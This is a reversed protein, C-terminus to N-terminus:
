NRPLPHSASWRELAGPVWAHKFGLAYWHLYQPLWAWLKFQSEGATRDQWTTPLQEIRWGHWHTKLMLELGLAFSAKSEIPISLIRRNYARFNNTADHTPVGAFWRLTLGAVRSLTRGLLPGGIRRGGRMYRSAAAVDAGGRILRALAPVDRPDDARDSVMTVIVDGKAAAFGARYANLVGRGITNQVLRVSAAPPELAAIAPLTNDEPFDYVILTEHPEAVSAELERLFWAINDGENYVPVVISLLPAQM